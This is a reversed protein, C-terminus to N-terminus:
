STPSTTRPAPTVPPAGPVTQQATETPAAAAGAMCCRVQMELVPDQFRCQEDNIQRMISVGGARRYFRTQTCSTVTYGPSCTGVSTNRLTRTECFMQDQRALAQQATANAQAALKEAEGLRLDTSALATRVGDIEVNVKCVDRNANRPEACFQGVTQDRPIAQCGAAALALGAAAAVYMLNM